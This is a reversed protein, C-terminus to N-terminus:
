SISDNEYFTKDYSLLFFLPRSNIYLVTSGIIIIMNKVKKYYIQKYKYNCFILSTFSIAKDILGLRYNELLKTKNISGLPLVKELNEYIV